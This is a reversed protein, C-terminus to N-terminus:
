TVMSRMWRPKANEKEVEDVGKLLATVADRARMAQAYLLDEKPWHLQEMRGVLRNLYKAQPTLAAAM